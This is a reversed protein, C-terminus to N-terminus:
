KLVSLYLLGVAIVDMLLLPLSELLVSQSLAMYSLYVGKLTFILLATAVLGIKLSGSRKWSILGAVSLVASLGALLVMLFVETMM